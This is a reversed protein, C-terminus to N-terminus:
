LPGLTRFAFVCYHARAVRSGRVIDGFHFLKTLEGQGIDDRWFDSASHHRANPALIRAGFLEDATQQMFRAISKSQMGLIQGARGVYDQWPVSDHDKNMAAEPMTM